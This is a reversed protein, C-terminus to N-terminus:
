TSAPSPGSSAPTPAASCCTCGRRRRRATRPDAVAEDPVREAAGAAARQDRGARGAPVAGAERQQREIDKELQGRAADSMVGGGTQLKQQNAQLAKAKDGDEAQKKQTLANVKAAAAKGDDSLQAIVQLNVYGVKAGASVARAAAPGASTRAGPPAARSACAGAAPPGPRPAPPPTAPRGARRRLSRLSRRETWRPSRRSM